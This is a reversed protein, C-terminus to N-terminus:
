DFLKLLDEKNLAKLVNGDTQILSGALERKGAQMDLIKEEISDKCIMRYAMVHKDQGIRYCRDIAQAEAAPNWWPDLIYVYDAATLNLGAGGAKLSLLFLRCQENEQFEAVQKQREDGTTKGDLYAFGIDASVLRDKLLALMATFASFVLIKHQGQLEGIQDMLEDLKASANPHGGDKLLAPSNCIQRLKMLGEIALFKSRGTNSGQLSDTLKSKFLKRYEDYLRRQEPLMDCYLLMESKDPLETAVQKKTRRLIFPSIVRQLETKTEATATGDAIGPYTRKFDAFTGFFGPNVFSLQAYLDGIGNEIPTGTMAIRYYANLQGAAEFRKSNRNKVAQSEDLVLYSFELAAFLEVDATLTGYTTLVVLGETCQLTQHREAGHHIYLKRHPAFRGLEAQWNFLLTNPVIVLSAPADPQQQYHHELISIVQLTKGLGMDDALIGGWGFERLFALWSLGAEQYRRLTAQMPDPKKIPQMSDLDMLKQRKTQIAAKISADAIHSTYNALTNFHSTPIRLQQGNTKGFALLPLLRKKDANSVFGLSGDQLKFWNKSRRVMEGLEELSIPTSGMKARVNAQYYAKREDTIALQWDLMRPFYNSGEEVGTLDLMVGANRLTTVSDPLWTSKEIVAVPLSLYDKQRQERFLPHLGQLMTRFERERDKDRLLVYLNDARQRMVLNADHVPNVTFGVPYYTTPYFFLRGDREEIKLRHNGNELERQSFVSDQPLTQLDIPHRMSIPLVIQEFFKPFDQSLATITYGCTRFKHIIAEDQADAVFHVTGDDEAAIFCSFSQGHFKPDPVHKGNVMLKLTLQFSSLHEKLEFMLQITAAGLKKFHRSGSSPKTSERSSQYGDFFLLQISEHLTPIFEAWYDFLQQRRQLKDDDSPAPSEVLVQMRRCAAEVAQEHITLSEPEGEGTLLYSREFSAYPNAKATKTGTKTLYPILVPDRFYYSGTPIGFVLKAERVKPVLPEMLQVPDSFSEKTYDHNNVYRYIRGYEPHTKFPAKGNNHYYSGLNFNFLRQQEPPLAVVDPLYFQEFYKKNSKVKYMLASCAHKCLQDVPRNCSCTIELGGPLIKVSLEKGHMNEGHLEMILNNGILAKNSGWFPHSNLNATGTYFSRVYTESLAFPEGEEWPIQFPESARRKKTEEKNEAPEDVLLDDNPQPTASNM